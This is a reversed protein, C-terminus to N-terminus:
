EQERAKQMAWDIMGQQYKLRTHNKPAERTAVKLALLEVARRLIKVKEGEGYLELPKETYLILKRADWDSGLVVNVVATHPTGGIAWDNKIPVVLEAEGIHRNFTAYHNILELLIEVTM